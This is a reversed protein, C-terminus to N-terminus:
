NVPDFHSITANNVRFTGGILIRDIVDENVRSFYSMKSDFHCWIQILFDFFSSVQGVYIQPGGKFVNPHKYIGFIVCFHLNEKHNWLIPLLFNPSNQDFHGGSVVLLGNQIIKSVKGLVYTAYFGNGTDLDLMLSVRVTLCM